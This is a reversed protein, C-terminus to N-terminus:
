SDGNITIRNQKTKDQNKKKKKQYTYSQELFIQKTWNM